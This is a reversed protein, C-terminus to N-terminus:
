NIDFQGTMFDKNKGQSFNQTMDQSQTGAQMGVYNRSGDNEQHPMGNVNNNRSLRPARGKPPARGQVGGHYYNPPVTPQMYMNVPVPLSVNMAQAQAPNIM